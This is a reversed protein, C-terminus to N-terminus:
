STKINAGAIGGLMGFALPVLYLPSLTQISIPVQFCLSAAALIVILLLVSLLLGFCLGRRGVLNGGYLGMFTCAVALSAMMCINSFQEPMATFKLLIGTLMTLILFIGISILLGKILKLTTGM